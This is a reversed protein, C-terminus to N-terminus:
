RERGASGVLPEEDAVRVGVPVQPEPDVPCRVPQQVLRQGQQVADHCRQELGALEPADLEVGVLPLDLTVAALGPDAQGFADEVGVAVRHEGDHALEGAIGARLQPPPHGQAADVQQEVVEPQRELLLPGDGAPRPATVSALEAGVAVKERSTLRRYRLLSRGDLGQEVRVPVRRGLQGGAEPDSCWRDM